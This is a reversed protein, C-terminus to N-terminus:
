WTCYMLCMNSSTHCHKIGISFFRFRYELEGKFHQNPPKIYANHHDTNGESNDPHYPVQSLQLCKKFSSIGPKMM